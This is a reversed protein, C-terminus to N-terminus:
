TDRTISAKAMIAAMRCRALGGAGFFVTRQRGAFVFVRGRRRQDAPRDLFDAADGDSQSSLANLGGVGDCPREPSPRVLGDRLASVKSCFPLQLALGPDVPQAKAPLGNRRRRGAEVVLRPMHGTNKLGAVQYDGTMKMRGGCERCIARAFTAASDFDRVNAVAEVLKIVDVAIERRCNGCHLAWTTGRVLAHLLPPPMEYGHSRDGVTQPAPRDFTMGSARSAPIACGATARSTPYSVEVLVEPRTWRVGSKGKPKEILPCRAVKLPPLRRELEALDGAGLGRDVAGAYRLGEASSSATSGATTTWAM